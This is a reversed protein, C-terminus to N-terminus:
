LVRGLGNDEIDVHNMAMPLERQEVSVFLWDMDIVYGCDARHHHNQPRALRRRSFFHAAMQAAQDLADAPMPRVRGPERAGDRIM